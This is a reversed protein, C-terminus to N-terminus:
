DCNCGSSEFISLWTAWSEGLMDFEGDCCEDCVFGIGTCDCCDSSSGGCVAQCQSLTGYQAGSSVSQCNGSVCNYGATSGGCANECETLTSYEGGSGANYCDGAICDYTDSSGGCNNECETQTAFSGGSTVFFCDGDYCEYGDGSGGCVEECDYHSDYTAGETVTECNGSVCNYGATNSSCDCGYNAEVDEVFYEYTVGFSEEYCIVEAGAQMPDCICCNVPDNNGGGGGSSPARPKDKKCGSISLTLVSIFVVLIKFTRM